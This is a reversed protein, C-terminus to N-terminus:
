LNEELADALWLDDIPVVKKRNPPVPATMAQL